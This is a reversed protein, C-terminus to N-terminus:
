SSFVEFSTELVATGKGSRKEAEDASVDCDLCSGGMVFLVRGTIIM